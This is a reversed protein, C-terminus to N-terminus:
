DLNRRRWSDLMNLENQKTLPYFTIISNDSKRYVLLCRILHGNHKIYGLCVGRSDDNPDKKQLYVEVCHDFFYDLSNVLENATIDDDFLSRAKYYSPFYNTTHRALIHRLGYHQKNGAKLTFVGLISNYSEIEESEPTNADQLQEYIDKEVSVPSELIRNNSLEQRVSDTKNCTRFIAFIALFLIIYSFTYSGTKKITKASKTKKEDKIEYMKGDKYYYRM